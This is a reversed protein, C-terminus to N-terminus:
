GSVAMPGELEDENLDRAACFARVSQGSAKGARITDRGFPERSSSRCPTRPM